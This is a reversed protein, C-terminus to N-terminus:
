IMNPVPFFHLFHFLFLLRQKRGIAVYPKCTCTGLAVSVLHCSEVSQADITCINGNRMGIILIVVLPSAEELFVLWM